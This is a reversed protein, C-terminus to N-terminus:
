LLTDLITDFEDFHEVQPDPFYKGRAMVATVNRLADVNELPNEDCAILDACKGTEVSGTEDALGIIRANVLTAAHIAEAPTVGVFKVFDHLERWMDYHFIFPCAADTGLGETVGYARADKAGQIIRDYVIKGNYKGIDTMKTIKTDLFTLPLAVSITTVVASGNAKLKEAIEPSFGACHEVTDVGYEACMAVGEESETHSAVKLGAAHAARVVTQVQDANMRMLGAEGKETSDMVGGTICIKIFDVGHAIRDAVERAYDDTTEDITAFTGAGHGNAVTMAAGSCIFRPGDIQGANIKDRTRVDSYQIDGVGRATTVGSMLMQHLAHEATSDLYNHGGKTRAYALILKQSFGGSLMKAPKGLGFHHSHLNILGPLLYRGTMDVVEYGDAIPADGDQIATIRDGDVLITRDPQCVMDATGDVLNAHAFAYPM